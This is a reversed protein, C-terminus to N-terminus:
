ISIILVKNIVGDNHNNTRPEDFVYTNNTPFADKGNAVGFSRAHNASM